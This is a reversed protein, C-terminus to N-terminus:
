NGLGDYNDFKLYHHSKNKMTSSLISLGLYSRHSSIRNKKAVNVPTTLM